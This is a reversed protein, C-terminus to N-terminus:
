RPPAWRCVSELETLVPEGESHCHAGAPWAAPMKTFPSTVEAALFRSRAARAAWGGPRGTPSRYHPRPPHPVTMTRAAQAESPRADSKDFISGVLLARRPPYARDPEDLM